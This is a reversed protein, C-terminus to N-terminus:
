PVDRCGSWPFARVLGGPAPFAPLQGKEGLCLSLRRNGPDASRQSGSAQLFTLSSRQSWDRLSPLVAWQASLGRTAARPGRGRGRGNGAGAGGGRGRPAAGASGGAQAPAARPGRHVVCAGRDACLTAAEPPVPAVPTPTPLVETTADPHRLLPALSDGREPRWRCGLRGAPGRPHPLPAQHAGLAAQDHSDRGTGCSALPCQAAAEVHCLGVGSVETASQSERRAPIQRHGTEDQRRVERQLLRPLDQLVSCVLEPDGWPVDVSPSAELAGPESNLHQIVICM